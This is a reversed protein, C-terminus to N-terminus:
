WHASGQIRLSHEDGSVGELRLQLEDSAELRAGLRWQADSDSREYGAYPTFSGRGGPGGLGYGLEAELRGVSTTSQEPALGALDRRNWLEDTESRTPGFSSGLKLSLGRGAADPQLVLSGGVGWEDYDSEEHALLGRASLEASMRGSADAYRLGASVEAGLGTEADGEDFRVGAELTPALAGGSELGYHGRGELLVRVRQVDAEVEPLEADAEAEMRVALVDSKLALEFAGHASEYTGLQGELGFAAMRMEIDTESTEGGTRSELEGEGYGLVGWASLRDRLQWRGYPHVGTLTSDLDHQEGEAHVEGDGESHSLALGLRWQGHEWDVGVTGTLVEGDLKLEDERGDFETYAGRGWATWNQEGDSALPLVFSSNALTQGLDPAAGGDLVRLVGSLMASQPDSGALDLKAEVAPAASLREGVAEAVHGAATRGFRALWAKRLRAGLGTDEEVTVPLEARWSGLYRGGSAEHGLVAEGPEAEESATLTVSQPQTWNEETFRLQAPSAILTAAAPGDAAVTVTVPGVPVADLAVTYSAGDEEGVEVTLTEVSLVLEPPILRVMVAFVSFSETVGCAFGSPSGGPSENLEMWEMAAEDWRQVSIEDDETTPLCVTATQGSGLEVGDIDVVTDGLRFGRPDDGPSTTPRVKVTTGAHAAPLVLSMGAPAPTGTPVIVRGDQPVRLLVGGDETLEYGTVGRTDDTTNTVAQDAFDAVENGAADKLTNNSGSTPQTYSVKVGTDTVAVATDLTLTVTTGSISPADSSSLTATEENGGSPTKKVAFASNALDAAAALNEDFTIILETGNVTASSVAPATTDPSTNAVAQDTFDAVENGVADVLKNNSGSTPQTYSVKVGTDTDVVATDLTLTVTAGSISPADSSSLAATEESGGSPTKKVAFASNALDAAAALDEDFTIVLETGNVTASSVTPMTFDNADGRLQLVLSQNTSDDSWTGGSRFRYENGITWGSDIRPDEGNPGLVIYGSEGGAQSTLVVAYTTDADLQMGGPATFPLLEVLFVTPPTLDTCTSTPNNNSDATCVKMSYTDSTPDRWYLEVTELTYGDSNSGTRFHQSVVDSRYHTLYRFTPVGFNSVLVTGTALPLQRTVVLTYTRTTGDGATIQMTITNVGTALDVQFGDDTNSADTLVNNNGDLYTATANSDNATPDITIQDVGDAVSARYSSTDPALAPSFTIASDDSADKLTLGSLTADSETRLLVRIQTGVATAEDLGEDEGSHLLSDSNFDAAREFEFVRGAGGLGGIFNDDSESLPLYTEGSTKEIHLILGAGDTPLGPQTELYVHGDFSTVVLQHITYTTSDHVFTSVGLSGFAEGLNSTSSSYGVFSEGDNGVTLTTCWVDNALTPSPCATQAQAQPATGFSGALLLVAALYHAPGQSGSAPRLCGFGGSGSPRDGSVPSFDTSKLPPPPNAPEGPTGVRDRSATRGGAIGIEGVARSPRPDSLIRCFRRKTEAPRPEGRAIKGSM